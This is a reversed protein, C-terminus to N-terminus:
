RPAILEDEDEVDNDGDIQTSNQKNDIISQTAVAAAQGSAATPQLGVAGNSGNGEATSCAASMRKELFSLKLADDTGLRGWEQFTVNVVRWGLRELHRKKMLTAGLPAGTTRSLHTPGDAEIALQMAPVSVDIAYGTSNDELLHMIRMATLSNAIGRQYSSHVKHKLASTEKFFTQECTALLQSVPSSDVDLHRPSGADLRISLATQWIQVQQQTTKTMDAGRCCVELWVDSFHASGTQEMVALSWAVAALQPGNFAKLMNVARRSGDRRSLCVLLLMLRLTWDSAKCSVQILAM